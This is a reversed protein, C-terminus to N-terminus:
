LDNEAKEDIMMDTTQMIAKELYEMDTLSWKFGLRYLAKTTFSNDAPTEKLNADEGTEYVLLPSVTTSLEEDAMAKKLREDFEADGITKVSFGVLNMSQIIDGMEVTHSNLGQLISIVQKTGKCSVTKYSVHNHKKREQEIIKNYLLLFM